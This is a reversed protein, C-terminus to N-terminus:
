FKDQIIKLATEVLVNKIEEINNFVFTVKRQYIEGLVLIDVDVLIGAYFSDKNTATLELNFGAKVLNFVTVVHNNIFDAASSLSGLGKITLNLTKQSLELAQSAKEFAIQSANCALVCAKDVIWNFANCFISVCNKKKCKEEISACVSNKKSEVEAQANELDLLAKTVQQHASNLSNSIVHSINKILNYLDQNSQLNGTINFRYSKLSVYNSEIILDSVLVGEAIAGTLPFIMKSLDFNIQVNKTIGLITVIASIQFNLLPPHLAASLNVFPGAFSSNGILTFVDGFNIPSTEIFGKFSGSFTDVNLYITASANFIEISGQFLYGAKIKKGSFTQETLAYSVNIGQKMKISEMLIKPVIVNQQTKSGLLARLIVELDLKSIELLFYNKLPNLTSLSVIGQGHLCYGNGVFVLGDYCDLGLSIEAAARFEGPFGSYTIGGGLALNGISLRKIGFAVKWIGDMAFNLSAQIPTLALYGTFIVEIDLVLLKLSCSISFEPQPNTKGVSFILKPNVISINRMIQADPLDLIGQLGSLDLSISLQFDVESGFYQRLFNSINNSQHSIRFYSAIGIFPKQLKNFDVLYGEPKLEPIENFNIGNTAVLSINSSGAFIDFFINTNWQFVSSLITTFSSFPVSLSFLVSVSSKKVAIIESYVNKINSYSASGSYQIAQIKNAIKISVHPKSIFLTDIKTTQALTRLKQDFYKSTFLSANFDPFTGNLLFGNNEISNINQSFNFSTPLLALDCLSIIITNNFDSCSFNLTDKPSLEKINQPLAFFSLFCFIFSIKLIEM